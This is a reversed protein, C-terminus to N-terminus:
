LTEDVSEFTLTVMYFVRVFVTFPNFMENLHIILALGLLRLQLSFQTSLRHVASTNGTM